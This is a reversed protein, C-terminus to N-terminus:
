GNEEETNQEPAVPYAHIPSSSSLLSSEGLWLCKRAWGMALFLAPTLSAQRWRPRQLDKDTHACAFTAWSSLELQTVNALSPPLTNDEM